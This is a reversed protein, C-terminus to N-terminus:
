PLQRERSQITSVNSNEIRSLPSPRLSDFTDAPIKNPIDQYWQKSNFWEDLEPDRFMRGHRAFIENRALRLEDRSLGVLDASTIIRESSFPLIFDPSGDDSLSIDNDDNNDADALAIDDNDDTSISNDNHQESSSSDDNSANDPAQKDPNDVNIDAGDPEVSAFDIERGMYDDATAQFGANPSASIHASKDDEGIIGVPRLFMSYIAVGVAVLLVAAVCGAIIRRIDISQHQNGNGAETENAAHYTTYNDISMVTKDEDNNYVLLELERRMASPSQYRDKPLYSFAKLVIAALRSNAGSPPPIKEGTIRKEISRERDSHTIQQPYPPLFPARNENLLRYMVIGLSYIDVSSGYQEGKYVEPAIYSYTGKKSLGSTTREITKAIGFDGLKYSGNDSIFINEPKIDRHIINHQQCIELANCMDIGLKIIDDQTLVTTQIHKLLPTLLEMRILIDWGIGTKHKVVVHDEYSVINSNGKLKEMLIFESVVENVIQKFHSSVSTEDMYDAMVTDVESQSQPITIVKLATRYEGYEDKRELSFVKGFSGEGLLEKIYWVNFLPEYQKYYDINM